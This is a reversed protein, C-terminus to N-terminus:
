PGIAEEIDPEVVVRFGNSMSPYKPDNSSRYSSRYYKPDNPTNWAGGRLVRAGGQEALEPGPPDETPGMRPYDRDYWDRCWQWVNGAMDFVGYPSKGDPCIGVSATGTNDGYQTNARHLLKNLPVDTDWNNGWPYKLGDTGRAAKEWQAETPLKLNLGTKKSLWECYANADEWTVNIIPHDRKRWDPNFNYPEKDPAPPMPRKTDECFKRYQDVTILHKSIAFESLQVKHPPNDSQDADGMQFEGQQILIFDIKYEEAKKALLKMQLPKHPPAKKPQPAIEKKPDTIPLSTDLLINGAGVSNLIPTQLDKEQPNQIKQTTKARKVSWDNVKPRVYDAIERISRKGARIAELLYYTFIGHKHDPDPYARQNKNCAFLVAYNGSYTLDKAFTGVRSVFPETSNNPSQGRGPEPDDRCSDIFLILSGIQIGGLLSKVTELTITTSQLRVLSTPYADMTWLYYNGAQERGHGAWFIILTDDKTLVGRLAELVDMINQSTPELLANQSDTTMVIMQGSKGDKNLLPLVPSKSPNPSPQKNDPKLPPLVPYFKFLTEFEHEVAHVDANAFQVEPITPKNYKEVGILVVYTKGARKEQASVSLPSLVLLLSLVSLCTKNLHLCRQIM